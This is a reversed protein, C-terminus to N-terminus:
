KPRYLLGGAWSAAPGTVAVAIAYWMPGLNASMAAFIGGVGAAFGILVLVLVHNMPARPALRATCYGGVLSYAARYATAMLLLGTDYMPQGWPPYVNLIHFLQDTALSLVVVVIFGTVVATTSRGWRPEHIARENM